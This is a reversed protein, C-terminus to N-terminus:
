WGWCMATPRRSRWPMPASPPIPAPGNDVVVPYKWKAALRDAMLRALADTAGGSPFPVVWHVVRSPFSQAAAPTAALTSFLAGLAFALNRM